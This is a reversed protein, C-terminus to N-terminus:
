IVWYIKQNNNEIRAAPISSDRALLRDIMAAKSEGQALFWIEKAASLVPFTFTWRAAGLQPVFNLVAFLSQESLADTGPFLSATHGDTGIGLLILDFVPPTGLTARLSQDMAAAAKVADADLHWTQLNLDPRHAGLTQRIMKENSEPHDIPVTREDGIWWQLRDWPL